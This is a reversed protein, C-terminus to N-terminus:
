RKLVLYGNIREGGNRLDISYYYTGSPLEAEGGQNSVGQFRLQDNDYGIAEFVKDGWRNVIYIHNNPYFAINELELFDHKGDGNPSVANFVTIPPNGEIDVEILIINTSCDGALDCAQISLQDTGSFVIGTYDIILHYSADISASAGSIPQQTITLTTPDLNNNPDSIITLLDLDVNGGGTVTIPPPPTIVPANNIIDISLNNSACRDCQNCIEFVVMDSGVTGDNPTYNITGDSQVSATGKTPQTVIITTLVDGPNVTANEQVNTNTTEGIAATANVGAVSIPQNSVITVQDTVNCGGASNTVTWELVTTHSTIATVASAHDTPDAINASGSVITWLGSEGVGPVNGDLTSNDICLDQDTGANAVPLPEVTVPALFVESCGGRVIELTTNFTGDSAYTFTTNGVTNDDITGDSDFDWNYVDGSTVNTSNDTFSTASGMCVIDTAFDPSPPNNGDIIVQDADSCGTATVTVTWELEASATIGTFTSAPDAPDTITGTGTIFTWLGTEGPNLAGAALTGNSECLDQDVGADSVPLDGVTVTTSFLNTCGGRDIELSATYTGSSSYTFSSNGATNDDITGDSDFDWNYIDGPLTNSSINTFTSAAGVCVTSATFGATAFSCVTFTTTATESWTDDVGGARVGLTYTGIPLTSTPVVVDMDVADVAPSIPILTAGGPGPDTDVFYELKDISYDINVYFSTFAPQSWLGLENQTRVGMLHMGSSLGSSTALYTVDIVSGPAIGTIATGSGIGPDTDFFYEAATISESVLPDNPFVYVAIFTPISWDDNIDKVRIGLMHMGAALGSSGASFTLDVTASSTFGPVPTANGIGPDSDFFYEAETLTSQGNLLGPLAIILLFLIKRLSM